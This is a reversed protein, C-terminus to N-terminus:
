YQKMEMIADNVINESFCCYLICIALATAGEDMLEANQKIYNLVSPITLPIPHLSAIEFNSDQAHLMSLKINEWNYAANRSARMDVLGVFGWINDKERAGVGLLKIKDCDEDSLKVGLEEELGRRVTNYINPPQDPSPQDKEQVTETIGCSIKYNEFEKVHASRQTFLVKPEEDNTIVTVHVGLSVNFPSIDEHFTGFLNRLGSEQPIAKTLLEHM